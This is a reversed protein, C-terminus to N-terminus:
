VDIYMGLVLEASNSVVCDFQNVVRCQYKGALKKNVNNITLTNGTENKLIEDNFKWSYQLLPTGEAVCTFYVTKEGLNM